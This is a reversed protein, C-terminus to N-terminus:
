DVGRWWEALAVVYGAILSILIPALIYRIFSDPYVSIVYTWISVYDAVFFLLLLAFPVILVAETSQQTFYGVVISAGIAGTIIVLLTAYFNSSSFNQPNDLLGTSELLKGMGSEIGAYPLIISMTMLVIIYTYMKM